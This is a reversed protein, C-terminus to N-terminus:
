AKKRPVASIGAVAPTTAGRSSSEEVIVGVGESFKEEADLGERHVQLFYERSM